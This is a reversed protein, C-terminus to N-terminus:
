VRTLNCIKGKCKVWTWFISTPRWDEEEENTISQWRIILTPCGEEMDIPAPPPDLQSELWPKMWPDLLLKEMEIHEEYHESEYLNHVQPCNNSYDGGKGYLFFGIKWGLLGEEGKIEVKCHWEMIKPNHLHITVRHHLGILCRPWAEELLLNGSKSIGSNCSRISGDHKVIPKM